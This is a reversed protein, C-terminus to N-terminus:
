ASEVIARKLVVSLEYMHASLAVDDDLFSLFSAMDLDFDNVFEQCFSKFYDSESTTVQPTPMVDRLLEVEIM